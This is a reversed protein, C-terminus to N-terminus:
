AQIFCIFVVSRHEAGKFRRTKVVSIWEIPSRKKGQKSFDM